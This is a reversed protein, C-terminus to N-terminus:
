SYFFSHNLLNRCNRIKRKKHDKENLLLLLLDKLKEDKLNNPLIYKDNNISEILNFLDFSNNNTYEVNFPLSLSISVHLSIGFSWLDYLYGTYYEENLLSEPSQFSYTTNKNNTGIILTNLPDPLVFSHSFDSLFMNMNIIM